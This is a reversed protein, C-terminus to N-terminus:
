GPLPVVAEDYPLAARLYKKGVAWTLVRDYVERELPRPEPFVPIEIAAIAAEIQARVEPEAAEPGAGPFFLEVAVPLADTVVEDRTAGNLREVTRRLGRLFGAVVEPERDVVSRRVVIVEPPLREGPIWRLAVLEPKGPYGFTLIYDVYPQPLVGVAVMGLLVWSANTLLNDQGIYLDSPVAVGEEQFVSDMVFELDSQRPLAIQLRQGSRLRALLDEWTGICSFTTPTLIALHDAGAPPAYAIALIGAERPASAVLLLAATLDSVMVDVQGAQFALIRDRQSPLPIMEIEVAEEDFLGWVEGMVIPVAGLAPPLSVRLPGALSVLSWAAVVALVIPTRM